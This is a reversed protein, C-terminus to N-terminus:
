ENLKFDIHIILKKYPHRRIEKIEVKYNKEMIKLILIMKEKLNYYYNDKKEFEINLNKFYKGYINGKIKKKNYKKSINAIILIM